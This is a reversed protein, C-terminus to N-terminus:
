RYYRGPTYTTYQTRKGGSVANFARKKGGALENFAGVSADHEDDKPWNYQHHMHTLYRENWRTLPRRESRWPSEQGEDSVLKVHGVKVESAFGKARSAKDGRSAIGGSDIPGYRKAFRQRIETVLRASEKKGASGPEEEWRIKYKVRRHRAWRLDREITEFFIEDVEAPGEQVAL